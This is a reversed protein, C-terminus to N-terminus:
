ARDVLGRLTTMGGHRHDVDVVVLGSPAGTRIALLGRPVARMMAAIRDPDTSAAYFGHCTLCGCSQPDHPKREQRATECGTCLAVPRKSRGLMFVPWGNAAYRLAAALLHHTAAPPKEPNTMRM